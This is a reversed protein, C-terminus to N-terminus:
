AAGAGAQRSSAAAEAWATYAAEGGEQCKFHPYVDALGALVAWGLWAWGLGALGLVAFM